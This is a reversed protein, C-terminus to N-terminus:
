SRAARQRWALLGAANLNVDMALWTERTQPEVRTGHTVLRGALYDHLAHRIREEADPQHEWRRAIEVFRDIDHHLDTALRKVDTVRSYHTLFVAEPTCSLIREISDHMQDPDFQTPSTTPFIFAEGDPNDFVRYSIGFVDGSFIAFAAEDYIAVHHLAHGPTHLVRLPSGGLLLIEEDDVEHIREKPIPLLNGYLKEYVSDGYVARTGAELKAPDAMHSAGRPHIVATAGPVERMLLGAGGSHDLHVHTLLLYDVNERPIGLEELAALLGPVSGNTGCDVFAARGNRVILHSADLDARVYRTDIAHIGHPFSRIHPVQM